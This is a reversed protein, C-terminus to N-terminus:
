EAVIICNLIIVCLSFLLNRLVKLNKAHYEQLKLSLLDSNGPIRLFM